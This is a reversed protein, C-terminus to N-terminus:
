FDIGIACGDLRNTSCAIACAVASRWASSASASAALSSDARAASFSAAATAARSAASFASFSADARPSKRAASAAALSRRIVVRAAACASSAAVLAAAVAAFAAASAASAPTGSFAKLVAALVNFSLMSSCFTCCTYLDHLCIKCAALSWFMNLKSIASRPQVFTSAGSTFGGRCSAGSLGCGGSAVRSNKGGGGSTTHGIRTEDMTSPAKSAFTHAAEAIAQLRSCQPM